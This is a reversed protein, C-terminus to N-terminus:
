SLLIIGTNTNNRIIRIEKELQRTRCFFYVAIALALCAFIINGTPGTKPLETTIKEITKEAPCAIRFSTSNGFTNTVLCDFSSQNSQGQATAPIVDLVKITFTRTQKSGAKLTIQPWSLVKTTENLTGGGNDVLTSYELVDSLNDEMTLTDSNLGTNEVTITYSIRDGAQAVVTSADVYGQSTNVAIKSKIINPKCSPDNIWITENGPCSKCGEDSELLAPNVACKKPEPIPTPEPTPEPTPTPTPEPTPAPTPATPVTETVLNGCARMIGFWGIKQSQGYWGKVYYDGWLSLPRSYITTTRQGDSSTINYQREGQDYSFHPTFGWSLRSGVKIETYTAKAIEERTIGVYDMVDKINKSNKDYVSLYDSISTIGGTVMDNQSSANASETPQFIAISQVILTLVVFILALRRTAEEKRLRKAYFGLQGILAPSFPLNSIIKKFM